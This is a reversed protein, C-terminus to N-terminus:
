RSKANQNFFAGDRYTQRVLHLRIRRCYSPAIGYKRAVECNNGTESRIARITQDTLKYKYHSEYTRSMRGDMAAHKTNEQNTVWELNSYHNNGCDFDKHNIYPKNDPNEIFATAVLRHISHRRKSPRLLVHRYRRTGTSTKAKLIVDERRTTKVFSSIHRKIRGHDSVSYIGEYGPIPKWRELKYNM